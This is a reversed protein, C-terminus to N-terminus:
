AQMFLGNTQTAPIAGAAEDAWAVREAGSSCGSTARGPRANSGNRAEPACHTKVQQKQEAREIARAVWAMDIDYRASHLGGGRTIRHIAGLEELCVLARAATTTHCQAMMALTRLGRRAGRGHEDAGDSLGILVLKLTAGDCGRPDPRRDARAPVAPIDARLVPAM